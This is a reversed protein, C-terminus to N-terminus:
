GLEGLTFRKDCNIFARNRYSRLRDCIMHFCVHSIASSRLRNFWKRDEAIMQSHVIMHFGSNQAILTCGMMLRRSEAVFHIRRPATSYIFGHWYLGITKARQSGPHNLSHIQKSSKLQGNFSCPLNEFSDFLLSILITVNVKATLSILVKRLIKITKEKRFKYSDCPCSNRREM